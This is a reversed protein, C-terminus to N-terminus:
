KRRTGRTLWFLRRLRRARRPPRRPDRSIRRFPYRNRRRRRRLRAESAQGVEAPLLVEDAAALEAADALEAPEAPHAQGDGDPTAPLASRFPTGAAPADPWEYPWIVAPPMRAALKQPMLWAHEDRRHWTKVTVEGDIMAAVIDGNQAEHQQRVVVLDGDKIAAGLMSDGVVKLLFLTGGGVLQRPLPVVDEMSEEVLIPGGAAISGLLPVDILQQLSLDVCAPERVEREPSLVPAGPLRTEVTRPRGADRRLYGKGELTSLQFAVSSTSSLGVADAIERLTPAYGRREAFDRIVHLVRRQRWTLVHDPDPDSEPDTDSGGAAFAISASPDQKPKRTLGARPLPDALPAATSSPGAAVPEGRPAAAPLAGSDAGGGEADSAPHEVFDLSVGLAVAYRTLTSLQVDHQGSELRAVASQSTRMLRAVGAQSLGSAERRRTLRAILERQRDDM